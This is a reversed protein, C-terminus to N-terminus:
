AGPEKYTEHSLIAMVTKEVVGYQAAIERRLARVGIEGDHYRKVNATWWTRIERAKEMNLRRNAM